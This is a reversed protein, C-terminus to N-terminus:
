VAAEATKTRPISQQVRTRSNGCLVACIREATHGDWLPPAQNESVSSSLIDDLANLVVSRDTGVLRNTGHTITVPRETSDRMTLCPVGLVTSEEQLGGSDTMIARADMELKLFDLYGLPETLIIDDSDELHSFLGASELNKKTRPHVPFVVPLRQSTDFLTQVLEELSGSQDVNAPRHLTVLIYSNNHVGIRDRVDSKKARPLCSMVSDIMINGVFHVKEPPIGEHQLNMDADRCTTLLVDSLHDTVIRNLEEPMQRDGSRLGSEVHIVPYHEKAAVLAAATTSNVDGFVIVGDPKEQLLVNEFELMIRATQETHTGASVGLHVDPKPLNLEDFFVQSMRTDYHQGTHVIIPAFLDREAKMRRWLPALKMFNPRAGAILLYKM